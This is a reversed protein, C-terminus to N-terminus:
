IGVLFDKWAVPLYIKRKNVTLHDTFIENEEMALDLTARILGAQLM